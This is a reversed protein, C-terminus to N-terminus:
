PLLLIFLYMLFFLRESLSLVFLPKEASNITMIRPPIASVSVKLKDVLLRQDIRPLMSEFVDFIELDSAFAQASTAKSAILSSLVSVVLLLTDKPALVQVYMMTLVPLVVRETDTELVMLPIVRFILM